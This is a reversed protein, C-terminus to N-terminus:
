RHLVDAGRVDVVRREIALPLGRANAEVAGDDVHLMLAVDAARRFGHRAVNAAALRIPHARARYHHRAPVHENGIQHGIERRRLLLREGEAHLAREDVRAHRHRVPFRELLEADGADARRRHIVRADIQRLRDAEAIQMMRLRRVLGDHQM